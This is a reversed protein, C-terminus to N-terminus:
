RTLVDKQESPTMTRFTDLHSYVFDWLFSQQTSLTPKPNPKQFREGRAAHYLARILPYFGPETNKEVERLERIVEERLSEENQVGTEDDDVGDDDVGADGVGDDGRTKKNSISEIQYYSSRKKEQPTSLSSAGGEEGAYTENQIARPLEKTAADVLGATAVSKGKKIYMSQRQQLWFMSAGSTNAKWANFREGITTKARDKLGSGNVANLFATYASRSNTYSFRIAFAEITINLAIEVM